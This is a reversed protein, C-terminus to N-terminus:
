HFLVSHSVSYFPGNGVDKLNEECFLQEKTIMGAYLFRNYKGMMLAYHDAPYNKKHFEVSLYGRMNETTKVDIGGIEPIWVDYPSKTGFNDLFSHPYIKFLKSFALEGCAGNVHLWSDDKGCQNYNILRQNEATTQRGKGIYKALEHEQKNLVIEEM